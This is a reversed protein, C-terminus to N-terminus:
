EMAKVALMQLHMIAMGLDSLTDGFAGAHMTGDEEFAIVYGRVWEETDMAEGALSSFSRHFGGIPVVKKDTM